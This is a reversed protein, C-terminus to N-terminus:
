VNVESGECLRWMDGDVLRLLLTREPLFPGFFKPFTYRKSYKLKQAKKGALGARLQLVFRRHLVAALAALRRRAVRRRGHLRENVPARRGRASIDKKSPM